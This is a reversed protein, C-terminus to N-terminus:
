LVVIEARVEGDEVQLTAFTFDPQRRKDTPSGPNLLLLGDEDELWPIHSHGFVVGRAEPFRRRMRNRRGKKPGSDHIMAVNAGGFEFELTEPLRAEPPDLNGRVAKVPAYATLTDLLKPDMLDGAHLVLNAEELHPMLNEPLAKARRPIHTDALVVALFSM